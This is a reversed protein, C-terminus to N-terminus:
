GVKSQNYGEMEIGITTEKKVAQMLECYNRPPM